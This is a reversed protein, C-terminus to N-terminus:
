PAEGNFELTLKNDWNLKEVERPKLNIRDANGKANVFDPTHKNVIFSVNVTKGKATEQRHVFTRRSEGRVTTVGARKKSGLTLTVRYNGDPVNVSFYFPKGDLAGQKPAEESLDIGYGEAESFAPVPKTLDFTVPEAFEKRQAFLSGAIALILSLVQIKKM